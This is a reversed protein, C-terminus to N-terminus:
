GDPAEDRFVALGEARIVTVGGLLPLREEVVQKIRHAGDEDIEDGIRVILHDGPRIVLAERIPIEDM